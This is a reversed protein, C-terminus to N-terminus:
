RKNSAKKIEGAVQGFLQRLVDALDPPGPRAAAAQPVAVRRAGAPGSPAAWAPTPRNMRQNLTARTVAGPTPPTLRELYRVFDGDPPTDWDNNM